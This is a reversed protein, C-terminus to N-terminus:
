VVICIVVNVEPHVRRVRPHRGVHFVQSHSAPLAPPPLGSRSGRHRCGVTSARSSKPCCGRSWVRSIVTAQEISELEDGIYKYEVM